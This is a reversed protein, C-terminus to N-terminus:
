RAEPWSDLETIPRPYIKYKTAYFPTLWTHFQPDSQTIYDLLHAPYGLHELYGAIVRYGEAFFVPRRLRTYM